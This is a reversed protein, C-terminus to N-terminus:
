GPFQDAKISEYESVIACISFFITGAYLCFHWLGYFKSWIASILMLPMCFWFSLALALMVLLPAYWIVEWPKLNQNISKYWNM